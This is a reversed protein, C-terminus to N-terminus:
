NIRLIIERKLLMHIEVQQQTIVLVQLNASSNNQLTWILIDMDLHLLTQVCM